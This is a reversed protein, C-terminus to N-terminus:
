TPTPTPSPTPTQLLDDVFSMTWEPDYLVPNGTGPDVYVGATFDGTETHFTEDLTVDAFGTNAATAQPSRKVATYTKALVSSGGKIRLTITHGDLNVANTKARDSAIFLALVAATKIAIPEEIQWPGITPM